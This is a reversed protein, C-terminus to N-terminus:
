KVFHPPYSIITNEEKINGCKTCISKDCEKKKCYMESYPTYNVVHVPTSYTHACGREEMECEAIIHTTFLIFVSIMLLFFSVIYRKM